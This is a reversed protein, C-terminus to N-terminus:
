LIFTLIFNFIHLLVVAYRLVSKEGEMHMLILMINHKIYKDSGKFSGTLCKLGLFYSLTCDPKLIGLIVERITVMSLYESFKGSEVPPQYM